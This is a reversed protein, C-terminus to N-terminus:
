VECKVQESTASMPKGRSEIPRPLVDLDAYLDEVQALVTETSFLQRARNRAELGFRERLAADRLLRVIRDALMPIDGPEVLYGTVGDVIADPTGGVATAIVPTASAMAELVAMPLGEAYSPLVYIAAQSLEREKIDGSVWGLLKLSSAIGLERAQAEIAEVDGHGGCRLELNPCQQKVLAAAKLLDFFGKAESLRGLFLVAQTNRAAPQDRDSSVKVPNFIITINAEPAIESLARKWQSSLVVVRDVRRLIFRILWRRLPDCDDRYFHIFRGGHLHLIVPRHAALSVLVFVSKRWFSARSAAHAHVLAVQRNLLLVLFECLASAFTRVKGLMSGSMVTGLYHIPWRAFLGSEAYVDVVSSIGGRKKSAPHMGLMVIMRRNAKTAATM